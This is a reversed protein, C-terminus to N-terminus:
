IISATRPPKEHWFGIPDAKDVRYGHRHSDIHFKYLNGQSAGPVFGEWVGSSGRSHLRHTKPDWGNFSGVVSVNRANPAWVSFIAGPQGEHTFSHAGMKDYMRYHSGENFLYLDNETLLHAATVLTEPSM